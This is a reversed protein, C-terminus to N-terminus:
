APTVTVVFSEDVDPWRSIDGKVTLTWLIKNNNASFSHMTAAPIRITGNGREITMPDTADVVVDTHFEHTDTHTDTGRRYSAEERGKLTVVLRSVRSAKGTLQWEFPVGGGIPLTARSLTITPRPNALALMQYPVSVILAIGVIQFLLLFIALFWNAGDGSRFGQIEFYTFAAVIGNWILCVITATILKGMPSATPQLVVPGLDIVTGISRDDLERMPLPMDAMQRASRTATHQRLVFTGVLLPIGAFGVFFVLGFYYWYTVDRNIVAQTPDAPDVYCQFRTGPGHREVTDAVTSDSTSGTMFNYRDSTYSRDAIRYRYQIDPRSTKGSAAVRSSIVECDAATWSRAQYVLYLPRFSLFYGIAIGVTVFIGLFAVVLV